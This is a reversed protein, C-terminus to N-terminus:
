ILNFNYISIFIGRLLMLSLIFETFAKRFSFLCPASIIFEKKSESISTFRILIRPHFQLSLRHVIIRSTSNMYVSYLLSEKKDDTPNINLCLHLNCLVLLPLVGKQLWWALMAVNSDPALSSFSFLLYCYRFCFNFLIVLFKKLLLFKDIFHVLRHHFGPQVVPRQLDLNNPHYFIKLLHEALPVVLVLSM